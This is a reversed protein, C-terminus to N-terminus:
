GAASREWGQLKVEGGALAYEEHQEHSEEETSEDQGDEQGELIHTQPSGAPGVPLSPAQQGSPATEEWVRWPLGLALPECGAVRDPGEQCRGQAQQCPLCVLLSAKRLLGPGRGAGHAVDPKM